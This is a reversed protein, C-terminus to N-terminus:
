MALCEAFRPCLLPLLVWVHIFFLVIFLLGIILAHSIYVEDGEPKIKPWLLGFAGTIFLLFPVGSFFVLFKLGFQDKMTGYIIFGIILSVIIFIWFVRKKSKKNGNEM